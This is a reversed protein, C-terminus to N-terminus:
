VCLQSTAILQEQEWWYQLLLHLFLSIGLLFIFSDFSDGQWQTFHVSQSLLCILGPSVVTLMWLFMNWLNRKWLFVPNYSGEPLKFFCCDTWIVKLNPQYLSQIRCYFSFFLRQPLAITGGWGTSQEWSPCPGPLVCRSMKREWRNGWCEGKNCQSTGNYM